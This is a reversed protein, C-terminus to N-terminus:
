YIYIYRNEVGTCTYIHSLMLVFLVCSMIAVVQLGQVVEQMKTRNLDLYSEILDGDIFGTSM